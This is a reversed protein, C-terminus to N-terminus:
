LGLVDLMSYLGPKRTLLFKAARLAGHAFTERSGVKHTLEVREGLAAFTVTHEGVVDGARVAHIGIEGARRESSPGHRGFVANRAIERGTAKAVAEALKLATGSPADKKFRHHTEVIEVDYEPGLARAIEGVIKLLLSVGVSMNPTFVVPIIKAAARVKSAQREDLGTTGIVLPIKRQVCTELCRMAGAPNSFDIMVNVDSDLDDSLFVGLSAGLGVLTGVDEGLRPHRPADVAAGLRVEADSALQRIVMTGMHGMAGNVAVRPVEANKATVPM